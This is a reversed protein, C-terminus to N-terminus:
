FFNFIINRLSMVSIIIFFIMILNKVSNKNSEDTAVAVGANALTLAAIDFWDYLTLELEKVRTIHLARLITVPVAPLVKAAKAIIATPIPKKEPLTDQPKIIPTAAPIAAINPAGDITAAM